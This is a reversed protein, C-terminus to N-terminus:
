DIIRIYKNTITLYRWKKYQDKHFEWNKYGYEKLLKEIKSKQASDFEMYIKGNLNLFNKAEKLFNKIYFLGDSGGFLAKHPEYKLVSEQVRNRLITRLRASPNSRYDPIYPPNAFIYDFKNMDMNKRLIYGQPRSLTYLPVNSFIDSKVIKYRNSKISNLKLNIKIQKIFKKDIETFTVKANKIHKLAAIGICGSGAFIDLVKISRNQRGDFDSYIDKIALDVWFETEPRPILPKKSLDIKCGLFEYFGIIYDLPEGKKLRKIDKKFQPTPKNNYKEELLWKINKEM